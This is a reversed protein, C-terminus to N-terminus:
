GACGTEKLVEYRADNLCAVGVGNRLGETRDWTATRVSFGVNVM